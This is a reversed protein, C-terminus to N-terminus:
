EATTKEALEATAKEEAALREAEEENAKQLAALRDIEEQEKIKAAKEAREKEV